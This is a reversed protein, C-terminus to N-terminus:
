PSSLLNRITKINGFIIVFHVSLQKTIVRPRDTRRRNTPTTMMPKKGLAVCVFNFFNEAFQSGNNTLLREKISYPIVGHDVIIQTVDTSTTKNKEIARTLKAYHDTMVVIYKNGIKAKLVPRLFGDRCIRPTEEGFVDTVRTLADFNSSATWM